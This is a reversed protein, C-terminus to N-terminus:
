KSMLWGLGYYKRYHSMYNNQYIDNFIEFKKELLYHYEPAGFLPPPPPNPPRLGGQINSPPPNFM